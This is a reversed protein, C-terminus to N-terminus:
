DRPWKSMLKRIKRMVQIGVPFWKLAGIAFFLNNLKKVNNSRRFELEIISRHDDLCYIQYSAIKSRLNSSNSNYSDDVHKELGKLFIGVWHKGEVGLSNEAFLKFFGSLETKISSISKLNIKPFIEPDKNWEAWYINFKSNFTFDLNSKDLFNLPDSFKLFVGQHGSELSFSLMEKLHWMISKSQFATKLNFINRDVRVHPPLLGVFSKDEEPPQFFVSTFIDNRSLNQKPIRGEAVLLESSLCLEYTLDCKGEDKSTKTSNLLQLKKQEGPM